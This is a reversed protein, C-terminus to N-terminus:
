ADGDRWDAPPACHRCTAFSLVSALADRHYDGSQPYWHTAEIFIFADYGAGVIARIASDADPDGLPERMTRLTLRGLKTLQRTGCPAPRGCPPRNDSRKELGGAVLASIMPDVIERATLGCPAWHIGAVPQLRSIYAPWCMDLYALVRMAWDSRGGNWSAPPTTMTRFDRM